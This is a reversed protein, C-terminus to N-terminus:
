NNNEYFDDKHTRIYELIKLYAETNLHYGDEASYKKYLFGNSDTLIEWTNLYFLGESKALDATWLNITCIYRSLLKADVTYSSMDMDSAIPFCSQLIIITNPSNSRIEDILSLYCSFFYEKGRKIKTVAGNLGFTLAVRKPTSRKAAQGITLEEGTPPYIIKVGSITADLTMTGSSPSWVQKTEKGGSLVGRSKLHYTTSEGIFIFSDIYEQGADPTEGLAFTENTDTDTAFTPFNESGINACSSLIIAFSLFLIISLKYKM